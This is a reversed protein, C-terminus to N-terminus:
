LFHLRASCIFVVLEKVELADLNRPSNNKPLQVALERVSIKKELVLLPTFLFHCEEFRLEVAGTSTDKSSGVHTTLCVVCEACIGPSFHLSHTFFPHTIHIAHL